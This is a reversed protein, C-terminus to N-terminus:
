QKKFRRSALGMIGLAFIALTSPEPVSTTVAKFVHNYNQGLVGRDKVYASIDLRADYTTGGAQNAVVSEGFESIGFRSGYSDYWAYHNVLFDRIDNYDAIKNSSLAYAENASLAGFNFAAAEIGNYPTSGFWRPGAALDFSGVYEWQLNLNNEDTYFDGVILNANAFGSVSLVLGALAAKLMKVNM